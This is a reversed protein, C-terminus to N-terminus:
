GSTTKVLPCFGRPAVIGDMAGVETILLIPLIPLLDTYGYHFFLRNGATLNKRNTWIKLSCVINLIM